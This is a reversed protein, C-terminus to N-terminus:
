EHHASAKTPITDQMNLLPTEPESGPTTTENVSIEGEGRSAFYNKLASRISQMLGEVSQSLGGDKWTITVDSQKLSKDQIINMQGNYGAEKMWTKSAEITQETYDPNLRVTVEPVGHIIEFADKFFKEILPMPERKILESALTTGAAIGFEVSKAELKKLDEQYAKTLNDGQQVIAELALKSQNEISALAEQEGAKKGEEFAEKKAQEIKQEFKLKLEVLPDIIEANKDFSNEFMFKQPEPM